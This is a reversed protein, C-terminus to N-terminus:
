PKKPWVPSALEIKWIPGGEYLPGESKLFGPAKGGIMWINTDPPQKGVIPAVVGAVGGLEVKIVYRQAKASSGGVSFPDESAPTIELKVVRPKPTSVLMSATTKPTKSDIDGMVIPVIGNVLDTPLKMQETITKEKGDEESYRIAVQGTATSITLDTPRKFAPGKQVLHYTLLSFVRRQSFVATEEQLSGDKFHFILESTVKNGSAGQTLVGSAIINDEVDRLLLFGHIRGEPHRVPIEGALLFGPLVLLIALPARM